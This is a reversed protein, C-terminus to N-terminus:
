HLFCQASIQFLRAAFGPEAMYPIHSIPLNRFKETPQTNEDKFPVLKLKRKSKNHSILSVSTSLVLVSSLMYYDEMLTRKGQPFSM